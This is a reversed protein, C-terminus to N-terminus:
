DGGRESGVFEWGRVVIWIGMGGIEDVWFFMGSWVGINVYELM